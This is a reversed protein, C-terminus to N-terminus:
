VIMSGVMGIAAIVLTKRMSPKDAINGFLTQEVEPICWFMYGESLTDLDEGKWGTCFTSKAPHVHFIFLVTIAVSEGGAATAHPCLPHDLAWSCLKIM